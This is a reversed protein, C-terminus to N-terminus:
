LVSGTILMHSDARADFVADTAAMESTPLVVPRSSRHRAVGTLASRLKRRVGDRGFDDLEPSFM